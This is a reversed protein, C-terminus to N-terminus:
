FHILALPPPSWRIHIHQVRLDQYWLIHTWELVTDGSNSSLWADFYLELVKGYMFYIDYPFNDFSCQWIDINELRPSFKRFILFVLPCIKGMAKRSKIVKGGPILSCRYMEIYNQCIEMCSAMYKTYSFNNSICESAHNDEM